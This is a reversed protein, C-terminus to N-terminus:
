GCGWVFFIRSARESNAGTALGNSCPTGNL